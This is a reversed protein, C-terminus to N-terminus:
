SIWIYFLITFVEFKRSEFYNKGSHAPQYCAGASESMRSDQACLTVWSLGTPAWRVNHTSMPHLTCPAISSITLVLSYPVLIQLSCFKVKQYIDQCFNVIWWKRIWEPNKTVKRFPLYLFIVWMKFLSQVFLNQELWGQGRSPFTFDAPWPAYKDQM